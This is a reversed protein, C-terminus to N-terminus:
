PSNTNTVPKFSVKLFRPYYLNNHAVLRRYGIINTAYTLVLDPGELQPHAKAAYILVNDVQQEQPRYFREMPSWTGAPSDSLRYGLDAQGFGVTQIELYKDLGPEHHVTFETQGEAFIVQPLETLEQQVVWGGNEGTWWQPQGLNGKLMDAVPWRVLHITHEPEKASFVLVYDAVQVVSGSVILGFPNEPADLWRLQWQSPPQEPNSILVARWGTHEFGIGEPTPRTAMLFVFLKGNLAIGHGPWFWTEGDEPFFSTPKGKRTRWYFEISAASPDYGSQIAVSNRILTALRRTNLFSRSIFTDGFLWLTRGKGLDVSYADDSGLWKPDTRFLADAEPWPEVQLLDLSLPELPSDQAAPAPACGPLSLGTMCALVVVISLSKM